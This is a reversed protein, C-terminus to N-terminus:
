LVCLLPSTDTTSSIRPIHAHLPEKLESAWANHIERLSKSQIEKWDRLAAMVGSVQVVM